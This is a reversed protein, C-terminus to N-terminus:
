NGGMMISFVRILNNGSDAIYVRNGRVFVGGPFHFAANIGNTFYADGTGSLTIVEGDPMIARIRHNASDAVILINRWFTIGMPLNFMADHGDAFGGVPENTFDSAVEWDIDRPFLLTGAVTRVQGGEIARILNNGTDAVFIVGCESIAIGMPANFFANAAPGDNHGPIRPFGAITTVYGAACIRRIVHNLTDAIFMNGCPGIAIASPHNFQATAINGNQHGVVGGAFTLVVDDFIVRIAHNNRDAIFIRGMNDIAGGFPRYFLSDLGDRYSGRPFGFDDLPLVDGAVRASHGLINVRRVINNFTDAIFLDGGPQGFIAQPLNFQPAAGERDGHRGTGAFTFVHGASVQAAGHIVVTATIPNWSVYDGVGEVLARIPLLIRDNIIRAPVDLTHVEGNIYFFESDATISIILGARTLTATRTQEDWVIYYGLSEFVARVPVLTRDELIVPAQDDFVVAAGNITVTIGYDALVGQSMAVLVFALIVGILVKM